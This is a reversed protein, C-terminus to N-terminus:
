RFPRPDAAPTVQDRVGYLAFGAVIIAGLGTVAADSWHLQYEAFLAAVAALLTVFVGPGIPRTTWAMVAAAVVAVAATAQGANLWDLGLSVAWMIVATAFAIVLAPERGFILRGKM